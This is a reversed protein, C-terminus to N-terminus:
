RPTPLIAVTATFAASLNSSADVSEQKGFGTRINAKDGDM